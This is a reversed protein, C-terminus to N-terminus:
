YTIKVRTLQDDYLMYRKAKRMWKQEEIKLYDKIDSWPLKGLVYDYLDKDGIVRELLHYELQPYNEKIYKLIRLSHSLSHYQVGPVPLMQCGYCIEGSFIGFQPTFMTNRIFVGSDAFGEADERSFPKLFPAGFFEYPRTTGEGYSLNVGKFIAQGCYFNTTFLGPIDQFPPISWPMMFQTASRVIYSIIHLPFKAGIESYFLNSLEGLTLGHRHPVGEVGQGSIYQPYLMTGEVGRGSPNERDLVYVSLTAGSNHLALFLNFLISTFGDYRSGLDQYEVILADIDEFKELPFSFEEGEGELPIFECGDLGIHSYNSFNCKKSDTNEGFIGSQPIFVRKLNGIRYLTEFVYEGKEPNWASQNCLVALRGRRLVTDEQQDLPTTRFSFM